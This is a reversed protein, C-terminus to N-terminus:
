CTASVISTGIGRFSGNIWMETWWPGFSNNITNESLDYTPALPRWVMAAGFISHRPPIDFHVFTNTSSTRM